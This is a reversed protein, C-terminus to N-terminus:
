RMWYQRLLDYFVADRQDEAIEPDEDIQTRFGLVIAEEVLELLEEKRFIGGNAKLEKLTQNGLGQTGVLWPRLTRSANWRTGSLNAGTFMVNNMSAAESFDVNVASALTFDANDFVAGPFVSGEFNCQGLEAYDFRADRLDSIGTMSANILLAQSFDPADGIVHNFTSNMLEAQSFNTRNIQAKSFDAARLNARFFSVGDLNAGSFDTNELIANQLDAGGLDLGEFSTGSLDLRLFKTESRLRNFDDVHGHELLFVVYELYHEYNAPTVTFALREALSLPDQDKLSERSLEIQRLALRELQDVNRQELAREWVGVRNWGMLANLGAIGIGAIVLGLVFGLALDIWGRRDSVKFAM